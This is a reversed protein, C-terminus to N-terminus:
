VEGHLRVGFGPVMGMAATPILGVAEADVSRENPAIKVTARIYACDRAM